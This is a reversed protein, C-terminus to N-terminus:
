RISVSAIAPFSSPSVGGYQMARSRHFFGAEGDCDVSQDGNNKMEGARARSPFARGQKQRIRNEALRAMAAAQAYPSADRNQVHGKSSRERPHFRRSRSM